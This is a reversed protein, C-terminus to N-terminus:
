ESRDKRREAGTPGDGVKCSCGVPRRRGRIKVQTVDMGGEDEEPIDSVPEEDIGFYDGFINGMDKDFDTSSGPRGPDGRRRCQLGGHFKHGGIRIVARVLDHEATQDGCVHGLNTGFGGGRSTRSTRM